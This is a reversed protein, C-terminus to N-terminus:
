QYVTRKTNLRNVNDDGINVRPDNGQMPRADLAQVRRAVIETVTREVGHADVYRRYQLRGEVLVLRGTTLYENSFEAIRGWCVVRHWATHTVREGDRNNYSENTAISLNSFCSGNVVGGRPMAGLRGVLQVNNM